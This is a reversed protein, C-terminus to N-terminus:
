LSRENSARHAESDLPPCARASHFDASRAAGSALTRLAAPVGAFRLVASSLQEKPMSLGIRPLSMVHERDRDHLNSDINTVATRFGARAALAFERPGCNSHDGYPYAFHRVALGLQAELRNRGACIETLAHEEELDRLSAHTVTHGGITILPEAALTRLDDWSVFHETIIAEDSVRAKPLLMEAVHRNVPINQHIFRTLFHFAAAKEAWTRVSLRRPLGDGELALEIRESIAKELRWPWVDLIRDPGGSPVYITAPVGHKRLVPLALTFNDRFGDDFTLAVFPRESRGAHARVLRDHVQDMSIFDARRGLEALVRDLFGATTTIGIALSDTKALVMKHLLFITGLGAYQQPTVRYLGSYWAARLALAKLESRM